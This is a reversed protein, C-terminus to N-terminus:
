SVYIQKNNIIDHEPPILYKQRVLRPPTKPDLNAYQYKPPNIKSSESFCVDEADTPEHSVYSNPLTRM